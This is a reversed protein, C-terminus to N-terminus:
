QKNTPNTPNLPNKPDMIDAAASINLPAGHSNAVKNTKDLIEPQAKPNNVLQAVTQGPKLPMKKLAATMSQTATALQPTVKPSATGGVNLESLRLWEKFSYKM